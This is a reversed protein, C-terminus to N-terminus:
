GIEAPLCIESDVFVLLKEVLQALLFTLANHLQALDGLLRLLTGVRDQAGSIAVQM